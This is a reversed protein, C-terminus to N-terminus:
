RNAQSNILQYTVKLSMARGPKQLLFNDYLQANFLNSVDFALSFDKKPFTYSIGTYASFQSPVVDKFNPDGRSEWELFFEHVYSLNFYFLSLAGKQLLDPFKTNVGMNSMLHPTNKLRDGYILNRQGTNTYKRNNRQDIYTANANVVLWENYIYKLDLEGGISIVDSINKFKGGRSSARPNFLIYDKIDRFFANLELKVSHQDLTYSGLVAGANLNLSNEPRLDSSILVDVGNGFVESPDPLRNVKELSFKLRLKNDVKYSSAFGAGFLNYDNSLPRIYGEEADGIENTEINYFFQKAFVSSKLKNDFLESNFSLGLYNSKLFQPGTLTVTHWAFFQDEALAESNKYVYNFDFDFNDSIYYTSKASAIKFERKQNLLSPTQGREGGIPNPSVVIGRWDYVHTATDIAISTTQSYAGFLDLSLKGNFLDDKKYSISPMIFQEDYRMKGYVQSMLAGHQVGKNLDTKLISIFFQDAWKRDILGIDAKFCIAQYDDNFRHAPDDKTFEVPRFNTLEADSWTVNRGWVAYDNDSYNYFATARTTFGSKKHSWQGSVTLQHTNFSGISYSTELFSEQESKRVINIAGGLADSGLNVPVVGKYVDLRDILLIPLNNISYVSGFYDAPIGDIFFRVSKGSMGDLSFDIESGLGGSQRVRVGATRDLIDNLNITRSQFSKTDLASVSFGKSEIRQVDDHYESTVVVEDMELISEQLIVKGLEKSQTHGFDIPVLRKKYGIGSIEILSKSHLNSLKFQGQSDTITGDKSNVEQITIGPISHNKEDVITGTLTHDQSFAAHTFLSFLLM